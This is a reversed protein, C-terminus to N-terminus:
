RLPAIPTIITCPVSPAILSGGASMSYATSGSPTAIILGDADVSICACRRRPLSPPKTPLDIPLGNCHLGERTWMLKM